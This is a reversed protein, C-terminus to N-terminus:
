SIRYVVVKDNDMMVATEWELSNKRKYYNLSTRVSNLDYGAPVILKQGPLLKNFPYPSPRGRKIEPVKKDNRIIM